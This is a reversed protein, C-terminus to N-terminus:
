YSTTHTSDLSAMRSSRPARKVVFGPSSINQRSFSHAGYFRHKHCCSGVCHGMHKGETFFEGGHSEPRLPPRCERLARWNACTSIGLGLLSSHQYKHSKQYVNFM